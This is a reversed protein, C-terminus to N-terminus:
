LLIPACRGDQRVTGGVSSMLGFAPINIMNAM